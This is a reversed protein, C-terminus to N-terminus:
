VPCTRAKLRYGDLDGVGIAGKSPNKNNLTSLGVSELFRNMIECEWNSPRFAEKQTKKVEFVVRGEECKRLECVGEFFNYKSLVFWHNYLCPGRENLRQCDYENTDVNFFPLYDGLNLCKEMDELTLKKEEAEKPFHIGSSISASTVFHFHIILFIWLTMIMM